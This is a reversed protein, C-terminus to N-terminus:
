KVIIRHYKKKGIRMILFNETLNSKDIVMDIDDIRKDNIYCGGQNILRRAESKSNVLGAKDILTVISIGDKIELLNIETTPIDDINNKDRSFASRSANRAKIAEYEGHTLKTAEFALIEKAERLDAGTLKNLRHIEDMPLLTFYCLFKHIDRDDVNIWYQYFDYPSTKSSDLWLAGKATKGMKQGNATKLLPFTVGYVKQSEMRRILDIGAVINGWQDDGGMQLTCNKSRFLILFDYAQLLQYNFELFSLGTELRIRYSEAALMRNVSFHKGIDRLFDIYNLELLWSSNDIVSAGDEFDLYNSLQRKLKESNAKISERFLMQRMETKGSPDGVMATGGGIVAIPHHGHRQMHILAMIPVLSGAHLSDATPDFGCYCALKKTEFLKRLEDEDTVQQIFGRERLVEYVNTKEM